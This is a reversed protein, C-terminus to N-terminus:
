MKCPICMIHEPYYIAASITYTYIFHSLSCLSFTFSINSRTFFRFSLTYLLDDYTTECRARWVSYLIYYIDGINRCWSCLHFINVWKTVHFCINEHLYIWKNIRLEFTTHTHKNQYNAALSSEYRCHSNVFLSNFFSFHSCFSVISTIEHVPVFQTFVIGFIFRHVNIHAINTHTHIDLKM